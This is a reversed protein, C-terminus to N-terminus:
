AEIAVIFATCGSIFAIRSRKLVVLRLLLLRHHLEVLLLLDIRMEPQRGIRM